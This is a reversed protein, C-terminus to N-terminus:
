RSRRRGRTPGTCLRVRAALQDEAPFEPASTQAVPEVM